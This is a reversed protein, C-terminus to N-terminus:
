RELINIKIYTKWSTRWINLFKYINKWCSLKHCSSSENQLYDFMQSLGHNRQLSTTKGKKKKKQIGTISQM